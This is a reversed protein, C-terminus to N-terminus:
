PTQKLEQLEEAAPGPGPHRERQAHGCCRLGRHTRRPTGSRVRVCGPAPGALSDAGGVLLQQSSAEAAKTLTALVEGVPGILKLRQGATAAEPLDAPLTILLAEGQCQVQSASTYSDPLFSTHQHV